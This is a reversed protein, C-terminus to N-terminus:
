CTSATSRPTASGLRAAISQAQALAEQSKRTLRNMDM